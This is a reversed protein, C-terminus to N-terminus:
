IGWVGHLSLKTSMVQPSEKAFPQYAVYTAAQAKAGLPPRAACIIIQMGMNSDPFQFQFNAWM